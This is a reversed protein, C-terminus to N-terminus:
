ENGRVLEVHKYSITGTTGDTVVHPERQGDAFVVYTGNHADIKDDDWAIVLVNDEYKVKSWDPEPNPLKTLTHEWNKVEVSASYNIGFADDWEEPECRYGLINGNGDVALYEVDDETTVYLEPLQIKVTKM